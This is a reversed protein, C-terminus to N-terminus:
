WEGGSGILVREVHWTDRVVDQSLLCRMGSATRLRFIRRQVIGGYRQQNDTRYTEISM